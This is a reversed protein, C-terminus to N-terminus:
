EYEKIVFRHLFVDDYRQLGYAVLSLYQASTHRRVAPEEDERNRGAICAGVGGRIGEPYSSCEAETLQASM